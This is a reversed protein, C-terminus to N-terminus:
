TKKIAIYSAILVFLESLITIWAAAVYGYSPIFISNASINIVMSIAYIGLMYINKKEVILVWMSLASLYFIPLGVLLIKLPTISASFEPRIYTILPSCIWGVIGFVISLFLLTIASTRIQSHLRYEDFSKKASLLSPLAANMFFTPFVLTLEFFKYALGYAGVEFTSRTITLIVNDIHFYIVNCLLTLGLPLATKVLKKITERDFNLKPAGLIKKVFFLATVATVCSGILFAIISGILAAMPLLTKSIIFICILTAISGFTIAYTAYDYRLREQFFANTTTIISQLIITPVFLIIGMKVISSYGQTLSGPLFATISLTIFMLLLGLLIRTTFLSNKMKEMSAKEVLQLYAANLGFDAFLYFISVYTIIKTFNGYGEIGLSRALLLSVLFTTGGSVIKGFVQALTNFAIVKKM